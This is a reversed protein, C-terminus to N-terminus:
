GPAVTGVSGHGLHWVFPCVHSVDLQQSPMRSGYLMSYYHFCWPVIRTFTSFKTRMRSLEARSTIGSVDLGCFTQKTNKLYDDDDDDDQVVSM